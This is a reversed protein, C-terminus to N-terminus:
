NKMDNGSFPSGDAFMVLVNGQPIYNDNLVIVETHPSLEHVCQMFSDAISVGCEGYGFLRGSLTIVEVDALTFSSQVDLVEHRFREFIDRGVRDKAKVVEESIDETARGNRLLGSVIAEYTAQESPTRGKTTRIRDRLARMLYNGGIPFAASCMDLIAGDRIVEVGISSGGGEIHIYNEVGDIKEVIHQAKERVEEDTTESFALLQNMATTGTIQAEPETTLELCVINIGLTVDNWIFQFSGVLNEQMREKFVSSHEKPRVSLALNVDVSQPIAGNFKQLVAYGIADLVDIYFVYNDAKSTNSDLYLPVMGGADSMKQTRVIRDNKIMPNRASCKIRVVHSDYQDELVPSNPLIEREDGVVAFTAPIKYVKCLAEVAEATTEESELYAADKADILCVRTETSGVDIGAVLKVHQEDTVDPNIIVGSGIGKGKLIM